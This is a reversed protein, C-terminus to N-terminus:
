NQTHETEGLWGDAGQVGTDAGCVWGGECRGVYLELALSIKLSM